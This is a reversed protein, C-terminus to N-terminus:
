QTKWQTFQTTLHSSHKGTGDSWSVTITAELGDNGDLDKNLLSLERLFDTGSITQPLSCHNAIDWSLTPLCYYQTTSAGKSFVTAWSKDRETRLWELAEQSYRTALANKKAFIANGVSLTTAIVIGTIVVVGIAIGMVLEFLTQGKIDRKIKMALKDQFYHDRM